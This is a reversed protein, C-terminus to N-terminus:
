FNPSVVFKDNIATQVQSRAKLAPTMEMVVGFGLRPILVGQEVPIPVMKSLLIEQEVVLKSTPQHVITPNPNRTSANPKAIDTDIFGFIEILVLYRTNRRALLFSQCNKKKDNWKTSILTKIVMISLGHNQINHFDVTEIEEKFKIYDGINLKTHIEKHTGFGLCM